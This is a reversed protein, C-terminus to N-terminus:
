WHPKLDRHTVGVEHAAAIATALTRVIRAAEDAPIPQESQLKEALTEGNVYAMALFPRGNIEGIEYIPCLNPHRVKAMAQAERYFRAILEDRNHAGFVPLKIAVPRNLVTDEALLVEGMGGRGLLRDVRYRGIQDPLPQQEGPRTADTTETKPGLFPETKAAIEDTDSQLSAPLRTELRSSHEDFEQRVEETFEPYQKEYDGLGPLEGAQSRLELEIALLERFLASRVETPVGKTLEQLSQRNGRRWSAEFADCHPDILERIERNSLDPM